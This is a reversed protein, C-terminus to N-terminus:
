PRPMARGGDRLYAKLPMAMSAPTTWKDGNMGRDAPHGAEDIRYFSPILNVVFGAERLRDHWDDMNLEILYTGALADHIRPETINARFRVCPPCWDAYFEVVPRLGQARAREAHDHLLPLLRGQTPSLEVRVVQQPPVPPTPEATITVASGAPSVGQVADVSPLPKPSGQVPGPTVDDPTSVTAVSGRGCGFTLLASFGLAGWRTRERWCAMSRAYDGTESAQPCIRPDGNALELPSQALEEPSQRARKMLPGRLDFVVDGKKAQGESSLYRAHRRHSSTGDPM